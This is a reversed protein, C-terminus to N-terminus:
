DNGDEYCKREAPDAKRASIIRIFEDEILMHVVFLVRFDFDCGIAADRQEEDFSADEYRLFPDFFIQAAQEFSVGHKEINEKAKDANWQFRIGRLEYEIDM